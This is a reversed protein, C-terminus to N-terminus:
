QDCTTSVAKGTTHPLALSSVCSQSHFHQISNGPLTTRLSTRYMVTNVTRCGHSSTPPRQQTTCLTHRFDDTDLQCQLPMYQCDNPGSSTQQEMNYNGPTARPCPIKLPREHCLLEFLHWHDPATHAGMKSATTPLHHKSNTERQRRSIALQM